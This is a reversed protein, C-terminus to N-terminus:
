APVVLGVSLDPRLRVRADVEVGQRNSTGALNIPMACKPSDPDNSNFGPCTPYVTKIQNNLDANFYTVDVIARGRLFTFEVGADWGISEEPVLDPNSIFAATTGFQEVMTPLKVGSGASAHPRIGLEQIPISLATRWTTFNEFTANEDHRLGASLFIRDFFEGRWEGAFATRNRTASAAGFNSSTSFLEREREVLGTLSHKAALEPVAFRYTAQYAAKYAEDSYEAPAPPGFGSGTFDAILVDDRTTKNRTVRFLHTLDGGLMDWQLDAGMLLVTSDFYSFSDSAIPLNFRTQLGTQDDRDLSKDSRRINVGLRINDALMAGANASLSTIRYGDDEGLLGEPALNFGDSRQQQISIAGWARDSGGAARVAGSFTGFSGREARARISLPGKGSRTIINVVGGIANSGYLASQPGRIVEIRDIDDALLDSFDFGGDSGANAEIGDILVLTHNHEAGRIRVESLGAPSGTRAVSVGPLSRLADAAHRIQQRRLDEGTVVTVATGLKATSIGSVQNAEAEAEAEAAVEGEVEASGAPAAVTQASPAPSSAKKTVPKGRPPAPPAELTAGEVVIGPLELATQAAASSFAAAAFPPVIAISSLLRKVFASSVSQSFSM